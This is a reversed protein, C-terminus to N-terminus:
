QGSAAHDCGTSAVSSVKYMDEATRAEQIAEKQAASGCPVERNSADFAHGEQLACPCGLDCHHWVAVVSLQLRM